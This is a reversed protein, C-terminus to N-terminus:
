LDTVNFMCLVTGGEARAPSAESPVTRRPRGRVLGCLGSEDPQNRAEFKALSNKDEPWPSNASRSAAHFSVVM